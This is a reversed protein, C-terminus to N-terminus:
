QLQMARQVVTQKIYRELSKTTTHGTAARIVDSDNGRLKMNTAFTRRATHCSVMQWRQYIEKKKGARGDNDLAATFSVTEYEALSSDPNAEYTIRMIEKIADNFKQNTIVRPMAKGDDYLDLIHQAEPLIKIVAPEETKKTDFMFFRIGGDVSKINVSTLQILDSYRVGTWCMLVFLNRVAQLHESSLPQNTILEIEKESLAINDSKEQPKECRLFEEALSQIRISQTRIIAKIMKIHNGITNKQLGKTYLFSIYDDYFRRNLEDFQINSIHRREMYESIYRRLHKYYQISKESIPKGKFTRTHAMSIFLDLNVTFSEERQKMLAEAEAKKRKAEAEKLAKKKQRAEELAQKQAEQEQIRERYALATIAKELKAKSGNPDAIITEILSSMEDLKDCLLKGDGARFTNWRSPTSIANNWTKVDVVIHSNLMLNSNFGVRRTYLPAVGSKKTTRLVFKTYASKAM